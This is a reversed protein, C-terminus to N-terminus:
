SAKKVSLNKEATDLEAIFDRRNEWESDDGPIGGCSPLRIRSIAENIGVAGYKVVLEEVASVKYQLERRARIEQQSLKEHISLEYLHVVSKPFFGATRDITGACGPSV